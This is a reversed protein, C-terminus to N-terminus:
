LLIQKISASVLTHSLQPPVNSQSEVAWKAASVGHALATAVDSGASLAVLAGAVLCDGAGSLNVISAPLAPFQLYTVQLNSERDVPTCVNSGDDATMEHNFISANRQQEMNEKLNDSTFQSSLSPQNASCLVAGHSGLTLVIYKLGAGLLIQVFHRLKWITTAPETLERHTSSDRDLIERRIGNQHLSEAMAILEAENPSAYTIIQLLSAARVSKAVSVPEFWVPVSGEKALTCAAELAPPCLNGDLMLIPANKIDESFRFIWEATLHEDIAYTDAVASAVEGNIDFVASVVPTTAGRCRRIGAISLGLSKWHSLLSDGAFDEGVVSILLPCTGLQAMSEAVNRAVGGRVYQVQGPTTTGRMLQDKSPTAQIDLVMGGIVVPSAAAKKGCENSATEHLLEFGFPFPQGPISDHRLFRKRIQLSPRSNGIKKAAAAGDGYRCSSAERKGGMHLSVGCMCCLIGSSFTSVLSSSM